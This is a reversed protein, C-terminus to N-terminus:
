DINYVSDTPHGNEFATDDTNVKKAFEELEKRFEKPNTEGHYYTPFKTGGEVRVRPAFAQEKSTAQNVLYIASPNINEPVTIENRGPTLNVWRRWDGKGKGVQGFCLQPLKGNPDADVYVVIKEGATVYKGFSEFSSYAAGNVM